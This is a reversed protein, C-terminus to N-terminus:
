RRRVDRALVWVGPIHLRRDSVEVHAHSKTWRDAIGEVFEEGDKEWVIRVTVPIRWPKGDPLQAHKIDRAHHGTKDKQPWSTNLVKQYLKAREAPYEDYRRGRADRADGEDHDMAPDYVERAVTDRGVSDM